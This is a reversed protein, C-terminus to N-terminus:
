FLVEVRDTGMRDKQPCHLSFDDFLRPKIDHIRVLLAAVVELPRAPDVKFHLAQGPTLYDLRKPAPHDGSHGRVQVNM